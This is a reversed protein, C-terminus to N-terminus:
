IAQDLYDIAAQNDGLTLAALGGLFHLNSDGPFHALGAGAVDLAQEYRGANYLASTANLWALRAQETAGIAQAQELATLAAEEDGAEAADMSSEILRQLDPTPVATQTPGPTATIIIYTTEEPEPTGGEAGVTTCGAGLVSLAILLGGGLLVNIRLGATM